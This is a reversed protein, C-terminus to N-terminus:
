AIPAIGITNERSDDLGIGVGSARPDTHGQYQVSLDFSSCNHGLRHKSPWQLDLLTENFVVSCSNPIQDPSKALMNRPLNQRLPELQSGPEASFPSVYTTYLNGPFCWFDVTRRNYSLWKSAFSFHKKPGLIGIKQCIKKPRTKPDNRYHARLSMRLAHSQLVSHLSCIFACLKLSNTNIIHRWSFVFHYELILM